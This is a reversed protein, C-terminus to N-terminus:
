GEEALDTWSRWFNGVQAETAEVSGGNDIVWDGTAVSWDDLQAENGFDYELGAVVKPFVSALLLVLTLTGLVAFSRM